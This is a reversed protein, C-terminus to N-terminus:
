PLLDTDFPDLRGGGWALGSALSRMRVSAIRPQGTQNENLAGQLANLADTYEALWSQYASDASQTEEPYYGREISMATRAIVAYRALPLQATPLSSPDITAAVFAEADAILASVETATPTTTTNFTGVRAGDSTLTRAFMRTGVEDVSPTWGEVPWAVPDMVVTDNDDDTLTVRYWGSSLTAHETTLVRLAPLWPDPDPNPLTITDITTWPGTLSAAEDITATIWPSDGRAPPRFAPLTIATEPGVTGTLHISIDGNAM